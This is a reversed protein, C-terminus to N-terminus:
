LTYYVNIGWIFLSNNRPWLSTAPTYTSSANEDALVEFHYSVERDISFRFGAPTNSVRVDALGERNEINGTGRNWYSTIPQQNNWGGREDSFRSRLALHPVCGSTALNIYKFSIKVIVAGPPLHLPTVLSNYVRPATFSNNPSISVGESSLRMYGFDGDRNSLKFDAPGICYVLTDIKKLRANIEARPPVAVLEGPAAFPNVAIPYSFNDKENQEKIENGADGMLRITFNNGKTVKKTETFQVEGTYSQGAAIANIIQPDGLDYWPINPQINQTAATNGEPNQIMMRLSTTGSAAQGNNKITVLIKIKHLLTQENRTAELLKLETIALDAAQGSVTNLTKQANASFYLFCLIFLAISSKM